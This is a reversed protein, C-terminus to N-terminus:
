WFLEKLITRAYWRGNMLEICKHADKTDKFRVRVGQPHNECVKVLEVPGLKWCEEEVDSKLDDKSNVDSQEVAEVSGILVGAADGGQSCLRLCWRSMVKLRLRRVATAVEDQGVGSDDEKDDREVRPSRRREGYDRCYRSLDSVSSWEFRTPNLKFNAPDGPYLQTFLELKFFFFFFVLM